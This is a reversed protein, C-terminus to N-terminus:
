TIAGGSGAAGSKADRAIMRAVFAAFLLLGPDIAAVDEVTLTTGSGGWGNGPITALRRGGDILAYRQRWFGDKELALKHGSWRLSGGRELLRREFRGVVTGSADIAEISHWLLGSRGLRWRLGAAEATARGSTLGEFRLTGVRELTYSRRDGRARTLRLESM